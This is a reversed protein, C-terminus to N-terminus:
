RHRTSVAGHAFAGCDTLRAAPRLRDLGIHGHEGLDHLEAAHDLEAPLRARGRPQLEPLRQAREDYLARRARLAVRVLDRVLEAHAFNGETAARPWCAWRARKEPVPTHALMIEQDAESLGKVRRRCCAPTPSGRWRCTSRTPPGPGTACARGSWSIPRACRRSRFPTRSISTSASRTSSRRATTSSPRCWATPISSSITPASIRTAGCSSMAARPIAARERAPLPAGAQLLDDTRQSLARADRPDERM